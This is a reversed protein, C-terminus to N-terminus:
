RLRLPSALGFFELVVILIALVLLVYIVTRIPDGIGFAVMLRQVAWLVVGIVIILVILNVLSLM